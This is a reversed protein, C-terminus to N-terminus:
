PLVLLLENRTLASPLSPESTWGKPQTTCVHKHEGALSPSEHWSCLFCTCESHCLAPFACIPFGKWTWTFTPLPFSCCKGPSSVCVLNTCVHLIAVPITGFTVSRCWKCNTRDVLYFMSYGSGCEKSLVFALECSQFILM